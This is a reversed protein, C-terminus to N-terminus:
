SFYPGKFFTENEMAPVHADSEEYQTPFFSDEADEFFESVEEETLAIEERSPLKTFINNINTKQCSGKLPTDNIVMKLNLSVNNGIVVPEYKYVELPLDSLFQILPEASENIRSCIFITKPSFHHTIRNQFYTHKLVSINEFVWQNISPARRLHEENLELFTSIMVLNNNSVGILDIEGVSPIILDRDVPTIGADIIQPNEQIFAIVQSLPINKISKVARKTHVAHSIM